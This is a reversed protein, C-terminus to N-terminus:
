CKTSFTNEELSRFYDEWHIDHTCGPGQSTVLSFFVQKVKDLGVNGLNNSGFENELSCLLLTFSTPLYPNRVNWFVGGCAVSIPSQFGSGSKAKGNM